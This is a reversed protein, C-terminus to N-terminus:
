SAEEHLDNKSYIEFAISVYGHPSRMYKFAFNDFLNCFVQPGIKLLDYSLASM